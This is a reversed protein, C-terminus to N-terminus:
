FDKGNSELLAKKLAVLDYSGASILYNEEEVYFEIENNIFRNYYEVATNYEANATNDKNASNANDKNVADSKIIGSMDPISGCGVLCMVSFLVLFTKLYKKM